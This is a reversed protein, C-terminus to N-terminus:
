LLIYIPPHLCCVGLLALLFSSLLNHLVASALYVHWAEALVGLFGARPGFVPRMTKFHQNGEATKTYSSNHRYSHSM